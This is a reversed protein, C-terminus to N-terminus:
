IRWGVMIVAFSLVIILFSGMNPKPPMYIARTYRTAYGKVALAQAAMDARKFGSVFLHTILLLMVDAKHFLSGRLDLGRSKLALLTNKGQASLEPLFRVALFFALALGSLVRGASGLKRAIREVPQILEFPDVAIFILYGSYSYIFLKLAYLLGTRAGTYTATLFAVKFIPQGNHIFLHLVFIFIALPAAILSVKLINQINGRWLGLFLLLLLLILGLFAINDNFLASITLSFAFFLRSPAGASIFGRNVINGFYGRLV